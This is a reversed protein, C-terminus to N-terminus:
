RPAQGDPSGIEPAANRLALERGAIEAMAVATAEIAGALDGTREAGYAREAQQRLSAAIEDATISGTLKM